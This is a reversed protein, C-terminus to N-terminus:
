VKFRSITSTKGKCYFLVKFFLLGTNVESFRIKIASTILRQLFKFAKSKDKPSYFYSIEILNKFSFIFICQFYFYFLFHAWPDFSKKRRSHTSFERVSSFWAQNRITFNDKIILVKKLLIKNNKLWQQISHSCTKAKAEMNPPFVCSM